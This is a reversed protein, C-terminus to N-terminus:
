IKLLPFLYQTQRVFLRMNQRQNCGDSIRRHLNLIQKFFHFGKIEGLLRHIQAAPGNHFNGRTVTLLLLELNVDMKGVHSNASGEFGRCFSLRRM